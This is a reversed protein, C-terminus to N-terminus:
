KQVVLRQSSTGESTSIRLQYVGGVLQENLIIRNSSYGTKSLVLRGSIDFLEIGQIVLHSATKVEFSGTNPNPFVSLLQDLKSTKLGASKFSYCPSMYTCQNYQVLVSFEGSYQPSYTQQIAGSIPQNTECDQWQYVGGSQGISLSNDTVTMNKDISTIDLEVTSLSDCGMATQNHLQITDSAFYWTGEVKASDCEKIQSLTSKSKFIHIDLIEISDCGHQSVYKQTFQGDSKYVQGTSAVFSDCAQTPIVDTSSNNITVDIYVLSDCGYQNAKSYKELYMGTKTYVNKLDSEYRDCEVPHLTYSNAYHMVLQITHTSDCGTKAQDYIEINADKFYWKGKIQASDCHTQKEDTFLKENITVDMLLISDCGVANQGFLTDRYLGTKYYVAGQSSVFSDCSTPRTYNYSRGLTLDLIELSDCGYQNTYTETYQGPSTYTKGSSTTYSYCAFAQSYNKNDGGTLTDGKIWNSSSGSLTFGNLNGNNKNGSYDTATKNSSNKGGAAGENLKYYAQLGKPYKCYEKNMDAKIASQTRAIDFVRVDDIDGEFNNVGDIRQGIRMRVNNGTSMKTKINGSTDLVGDVYLSFNLTAKPDYVVAVHHWKGDNIAINGSLGSGSLEVRLANNYLINMTFRGGTTATGWDTIVKQKGGKNPDCNAKTRIRAEVTRWGQGAVGMYSTQVYDDSGDFNLAVNQGSVSTSWFSFSLLGVTYLINKLM